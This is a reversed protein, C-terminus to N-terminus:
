FLSSVLLFIIFSIFLLLSKVEKLVSMLIIKSDKIPSFHSTKNKNLYITDIVIEKLKINNKSASFIMNMEYEFHDGEIELVWDILQPHFGRLGTQTDHVKQGSIFSFLKRSISNGIKSRLPVVDATLLRGGLVVTNEKIQQGVRIIDCVSHQGDCDATVIYTNSYNNKIYEFGYRLAFGKGHNNNYGIVHCGIKQAQDFIDKYLPGSGDDVLLIQQNKNLLKTVLTILEQDPEYAPILIIM